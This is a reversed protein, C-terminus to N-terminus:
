GPVEPVVMRLDGKGKSFSLNIFILWEKSSQPSLSDTGIESINSISSLEKHFNDIHSEEIEVCFSIAVDSFM